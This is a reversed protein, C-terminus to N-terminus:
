IKYPNLKKRNRLFQGIFQIRKRTEGLLSFSNQVKVQIQEREVATWTQVGTGSLSNSVEGRDWNPANKDTFALLRGSVKRKCLLDMELPQARMYCLVSLWENTM